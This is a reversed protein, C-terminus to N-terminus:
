IGFILALGALVLCAGGMTMGYLIFTVYVASYGHFLTLLCSTLCLLAGIALCTFGLQRQKKYKLSRVISLQQELETESLGKMQLQEKIQKLTMGQNFLLEAEQFSNIELNM